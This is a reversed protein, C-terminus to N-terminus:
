PFRLDVVYGAHDSLVRGNPANDITKSGQVAIGAPGCILDITSCRPQSHLAESGRRGLFSSWSVVESPSQPCRCVGGGGIPVCMATFLEALSVM